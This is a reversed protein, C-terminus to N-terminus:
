SLSPMRYGPGAITHRHGALVLELHQQWSARTECHVVTDRLGVRSLIEALRSAAPGSFTLSAIEGAPDRKGPHLTEDGWDLFFPLQSGLEDDLTMLMSWELTKGDSTQRIGALIESCAVGCTALTDQITPLDSSRLAWWCFAPATLKESEDRGVSRAAQASDPALLELYAEGSLPLLANRTGRRPHSGGHRPSACTTTEFWRIADALSPCGILVHDIECSPM